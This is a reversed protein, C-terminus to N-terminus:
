KYFGADYLSVTPKDRETPLNNIHPVLYSVAVIEADKVNVSFSIVKNASITPTSYITKYDSGKNKVSIVVQVPRPNKTGTTNFEIVGKLFRYEKNTDYELQLSSGNGTPNTVPETFILKSSRSTGNVDKLAGKTAEFGGVYFPDMDVLLKDASSSAPPSFDNILVTGTSADWQVDKDLAQSIARIPVYTTGDIVFPEVIKGNADNPIVEQGNVNLKVNNYYAKLNKWGTQAEASLAPLLILVTVLCGCIIGSLFKFRTRM